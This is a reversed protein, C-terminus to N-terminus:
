RKANERAEKRALNQLKFMGFGSALVILAGGWSPIKTSMFMVQSPAIKGFAYIVCLLLFGFLIFRNFTQQSM